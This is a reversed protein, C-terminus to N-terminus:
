EAEEYNDCIQENDKSCFGDGEDNNLKCKNFGDLHKCRGRNGM